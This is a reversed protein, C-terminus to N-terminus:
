LILAVYCRIFNLAQPRKLLNNNLEIDCRIKYLGNHQEKDYIWKYEQIDIIEADKFMEEFALKASDKDIAKVIKSFTPTFIEYQKM